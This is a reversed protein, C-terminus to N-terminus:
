ACSCCWPAATMAAPRCDILLRVGAATDVDFPATRPVRASPYNLATNVTVTNADGLPIQADAHIRMRIFQGLVCCRMATTAGATQAAFLELVIEDVEAHRRQALAEQGGIPEVAQLGKEREVGVHAVAAQQHLQFLVDCRVLNEALVSVEGRVRCRPDLVGALVAHHDLLAQVKPGVAEDDFQRAVVAIQQLMEQREPHRHEADLRGLVNRAHGDLLAHGCPRLEKADLEGILEGGLAQLGIQDGAVVDQRLNGIEVVEDGADRAQQFGSPTTVRSNGCM